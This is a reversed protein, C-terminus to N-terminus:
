CSGGPEQGAPLQLLLAHLTRIAVAAARRDDRGVDLRALRDIVRDLTAPEGYPIVGLAGVASVRVRRERDDLAALFPDVADAAFPGLGTEAATSWLLAAATSRVEGDADGLCRLLEPVLLLERAGRLLLGALAQRRAPADMTRLARSVAAASAWVADRQAGPDILTGLARELRVIDKELM